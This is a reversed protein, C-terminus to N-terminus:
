FLDAFNKEEEEVKQYDQDGKVRNHQNIYENSCIFKHLYKTGRALDNSEHYAVIPLVTCIFVIGHNTVYYSDTAEIFEDDGTRRVLKMLYLDM